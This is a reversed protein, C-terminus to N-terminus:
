LHVEQCLPLVENRRLRLYCKRRQPPTNGYGPLLPIDHFFTESKNGAHVIGLVHGAEATLEAAGTFAAVLGEVAILVATGITQRVSTPSRVPM